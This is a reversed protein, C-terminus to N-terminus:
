VHNENQNELDERIKMNLTLLIDDEYDEITETIMQKFSDWDGTLYADMIANILDTREITWELESFMMAKIDTIMADSLVREQNRSM